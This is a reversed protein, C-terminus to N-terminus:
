EIEPNTDCNVVCTSGGMTQDNGGCEAFCSLNNCETWKCSADECLTPELVTFPPSDSHGKVTGQGRSAEPDVAFSEVALTEVDLKLKRM